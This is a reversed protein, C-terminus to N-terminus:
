PTAWYQPLACIHICKVKRVSGTSLGATTSVCSHCSWGEAQGTTKLLIGLEMIAQEKVKIGEEDANDVEKKVACM